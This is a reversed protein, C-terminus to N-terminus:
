RPLNRNLDVDGNRCMDSAPPRYKPHGTSAGCRDNLENMSYPALEKCAVFAETQSDRPIVLWYSIFVGDEFESEGRLRISDESFARVVIASLLKYM